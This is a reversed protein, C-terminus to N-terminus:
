GRQVAPAGGAYGHQGRRGRRGGGRDGGRSRSVWVGGQHVRPYQGESLLVARGAAERPLRQARATERGGDSRQVGASTGRGRDGRRSIVVRRSPFEASHRGAVVRPARLATSVRRGVVDGM